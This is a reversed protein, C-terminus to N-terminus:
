SHWVEVQSQTKLKERQQAVNQLARRRFLAAHEDVEAEAEKKEQFFKLSSHLAEDKQHRPRPQVVSLLSAGPELATDSEVFHVSELLQQVWMVTTEVEQAMQAAQSSSEPGGSQRRSAGAGLAERLAPLSPARSSEATLIPQPGSGSGADTVVPLSETTSARSQTGPPGHSALPKQDSGSTVLREFREAGQTQLMSPVPSPPLNRDKAPAGSTGSALSASLREIELEAMRLEEETAAGEAAAAAEQARGAVSEAEGVAAGIEQAHRLTARMLEVLQASAESFRPQVTAFAVGDSLRPGGGAMGTM